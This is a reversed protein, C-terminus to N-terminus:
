KCFKNGANEYTYTHICNVFSSNYHVTEEQFRHNLIEKSITTRHKNLKEEIFEREELTLHKQKMKYLRGKM